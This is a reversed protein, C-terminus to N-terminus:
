LLMTLWANQPKSLDLSPIYVWVIPAGFQAYAPNPVPWGATVRDIYLWCMYEVPLAGYPTVDVKVMYSRGSVGGTMSFEITDGSVILANITMENVGSPMISASVQQILAGPIDESIDLAYTRTSGPEKDPWHLSRGM